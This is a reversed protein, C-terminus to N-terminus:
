TGERAFRIGSRDGASQKINQSPRSFSDETNRIIQTLMANLDLGRESTVCIKKSTCSRVPRDCLSCFVFFFFCLDFIRKSLFIQHDYLRTWAFAFGCIEYEVSLSNDYGDGPKDLTVGSTRV